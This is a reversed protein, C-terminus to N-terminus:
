CIMSFSNKDNSLLHLCREHFRNIENNKTRNHCMWILQCYNFQTMFFANTLLTKKEFDLHHSIRSLANLKLGAKKCKEDMLTNFSLKSDIKAGLLREHTTNNIEM